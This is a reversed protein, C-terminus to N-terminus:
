RSQRTHAGHLRTYRHYLQTMCRGVMIDYETMGENDMGGWSQIYSSGDRSGLISNGHLSSEMNAVCRQQEAPTGQPPSAALAPSATGLVIAICLAANMKATMATDGQTRGQLQDLRSGFARRDSIRYSHTYGAIQVPLENFANNTQRSCRHNTWCASFDAASLTQNRQYRSFRSVDRQPTPLWPLRKATSTARM